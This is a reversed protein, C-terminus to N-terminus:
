RSSVEYFKFAVSVIIPQM